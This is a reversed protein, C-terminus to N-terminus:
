RKIPVPCKARPGLYLLRSREGAMPAKFSKAKVAVNAVLKGTRADVLVMAVRKADKPFNLAVTVDGAAESSYNTLLVLMQNDRALARVAGPGQPVTLAASPEGEGIFDEFPALLTLAEGFRMLDMGDVDHFPQLVVARAGAAVAELVQDRVDTRRVVPTGHMPSWSGASVAVGAKGGPPLLKILKALEGGVWGPTGTNSWNMQPEIMEFDFVTALKAYDIRSGSNPVPVSALLTLPASANPLPPKADKRYADLAKRLAWYLDARQAAQSEDWLEHLKPYKAPEAEFTAPEVWKLDPVRQKALERFKAVCRADFCHPVRGGRLNTAMTSTGTAALGAPEAFLTKIADAHRWSPCVQGRIAKGARDRALAEAPVKGGLGFSAGPSIGLKELPEAAARALGKDLLLLNLGTRPLDRALINARSAVLGSPVGGLGALLTRPRKVQPMRIVSMRVPLIPQAGGTWRAHYYARHSGAELKTKLWLRVPRNGASSFTDQGAARIVSYIRRIYPRGGIFLPEPDRTALKLGMGNEGGTLDFGKPLDIVVELGHKGNGNYLSWTLDFFLPCEMDPSAYATQDPYALEAGKLGLRFRPLDAPTGEFMAINDLWVKTPARDVVLGLSCNGRFSGSNVTVMFPVWADASMTGRVPIARGFVAVLLWPEVSSNGAPPAQRRWGTIVYRANPKIGSVVTDWEGWKKESVEDISVAHGGRHGPAEWRYAGGELVDPPRFPIRAPVAGKKAWLARLQKWREDNPAPGTWYQPESHFWGDPVGDRNADTEFGSNQILNKPIRPKAPPQGGAAAAATLLLCLL